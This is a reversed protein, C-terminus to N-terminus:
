RARSWAAVDGPAGAHLACAHEVPHWQAFVQAPWVLQAFLLISRLQAEAAGILPAIATIFRFVQCKIRRECSAAGQWSPPM